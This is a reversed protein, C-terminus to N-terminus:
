IIVSVYGLVWCARRWAVGSGGRLSGLGAARSNRLLALRRDVRMSSLRRLGLNGLLALRDVRISGLGAIRSDGLLALRGGVRSNRLLALRRSVGLSSLGRLGLNRLGAARSDGLLALRRDVGLTTLRRVRSDRGGSGAILLGGLRSARSWTDGLLALRGGVGLTTLRRLGLNGLLALRGGVRSNRLLALRRSVGLSSLGRLGLNRLGAARSDGLLALRRDVGLTTLRRVRSDRGGSGAILLGGLRSARSWTDGLLALRRGVWTSRLGRLRLCGLGAAWSRGVGLSVLRRLGLSGLGAGWSNGLLALGGVRTNGLRRLLALGSLSGRDRIGVLGLRSRGAATCLGLRGLWGTAITVNYGVAVLPGDGVSGVCLGALALFSTLNSRVDLLNSTEAEGSDADVVGVATDELVNNRLALLVSELDDVTDEELSALLAAEGLVGVLLEVVDLVLSRLVADGHDNDAVLAHEVTVALRLLESRVDVVDAVLETASAEGGSDGDGGGLGDVDPLGLTGGEAGVDVDEDALDLGVEGLGDAGVHGTVKGGLLELLGGLDAGLSGGTTGVNTLDAPRGLTLGVALSDSAGISLTGSHLLNLLSDTLLSADEGELVVGPLGSAGITNLLVKATDINKCLDLM